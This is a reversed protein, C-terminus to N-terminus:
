WFDSEQTQRLLKQAITFTV